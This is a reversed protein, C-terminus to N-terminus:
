SPFVRDRLYAGRAEFEDSVRNYHSRWPEAMRAMNSWGDIRITLLAEVFDMAVQCSAFVRGGSSIRPGTPIDLSTAFGEDDLMEHVMWDDGIAMAPVIDPEGLRLTHLESRAWGAREVLGPIAKEAYPLNSQFLGFIALHHKM